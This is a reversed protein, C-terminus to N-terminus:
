SYAVLSLWHALISSYHTQSKLSLIFDMNPGCSSFLFIWLSSCKEQALCLTLFWSLGSSCAEPPAWARGGDGRQAWLEGQVQGLCDPVGELVTPVM